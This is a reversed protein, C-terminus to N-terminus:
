FGDLLHIDLSVFEKSKYVYYHINSFCVSSVSLHYM